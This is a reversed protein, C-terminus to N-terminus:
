RARYSINCLTAQSIMGENFKEAVELQSEDDLRRRFAIRDVGIQPAISGNVELYLHDSLRPGHGAGRM